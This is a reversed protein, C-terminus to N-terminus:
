RLASESVRCTPATCHWNPSIFPAVVPSGVVTHFYIFYTAVESVVFKFYLITNYLLTYYLTSYFLVITYYLM